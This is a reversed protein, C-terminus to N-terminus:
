LIACRTSAAPAQPGRSQSQGKVATPDDVASAISAWLSTQLSNRGPANCAAVEAFSLSLRTRERGGHPAGEQHREDNQTSPPKVQHRPRHGRPRPFHPGCEQLHSALCGQCLEWRTPREFMPG